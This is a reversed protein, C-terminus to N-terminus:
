YPQILNGQCITDSNHKGPIEVTHNTESNVSIVKWDKRNELCLAKSVTKLTSHLREVSDYSNYVLGEHCCGFDTIALRSSSPVYQFDLLINDTQLDRHTIYNQLLHVLAELLQTFLLWARHGSVDIRKLYEKLSCNYRKMVLFLTMNKGCGDSLLRLPLAQPYNTFAGPLLPTQDAFAFCMEVINPHSGLKKKRNKHKTLKGLSFEDIAPLTEKYVAHWVAYGNSEANYSFM